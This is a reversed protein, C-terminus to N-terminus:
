IGSERQSEEAALRAREPPQDVICAPPQGRRRRCVNTAAAGASPQEVRAARDAREVHVMRRAAVNHAHGIRLLQDIQAAAGPRSAQVGTQKRQLKRVTVRSRQDGKAVPGPSTVRM